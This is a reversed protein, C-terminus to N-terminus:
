KVGAKAAAEPDIQKLAVAASSRVDEENDSLANLIMSVSAEGQQGFQGLSILSLSRLLTDNGPLTRMLAPVALGPEAHLQGLSMAAAHRVTSSADQLRAILAPVVTTLDSREWGLGSAASCRIRDNQNTLAVLLAPLAESGIGALATTTTVLANTHFLLNTLVPLASRAENGMAYLAWSAAGTQHWPTGFPLDVVSQKRNLRLIMKQYPPGGSQIVNLLAPIANSGMERFAVFAANNTDGDWRELDKLWASLRKRHYVPEHPKQALWAVVGLVGALLAVLLMGRKKSM